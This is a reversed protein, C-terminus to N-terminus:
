LDVVAGAARRRRYIVFGLQGHDATDLAALTPRLTLPSSRRRQRAGMTRRHPWRRAGGAQDALAADARDDVGFRAVALVQELVRGIDAAQM